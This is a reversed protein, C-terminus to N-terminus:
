KTVDRIVSWQSDDNVDNPYLVLAAKDDVCVVMGLKHHREDDSTDDVYEVLVVVGVLANLSDSYRTHKKADNIKGKTGFQSTVLTNWIGSTKVEEALVEEVSCSRIIAVDTNVNNMAQIARRM